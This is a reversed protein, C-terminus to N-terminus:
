TSCVMAKNVLCCHRTAVMNRRKNTDLRTSPERSIALYRVTGGLYLM